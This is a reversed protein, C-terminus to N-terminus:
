ISSNFASVPTGSGDSGIGLRHRILGYEDATIVVADLALDGQDPLESVLLEDKTVSM